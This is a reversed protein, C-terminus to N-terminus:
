LNLSKTMNAVLMDTLNDLYDYDEMSKSYQEKM